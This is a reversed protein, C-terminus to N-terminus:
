IICIFDGVQRVKKYAGMRGKEHRREERGYREEIDMDAQKEGVEGECIKKMLGEGTDEM